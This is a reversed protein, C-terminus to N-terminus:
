ISDTLRVHDYTHSTNQMVYFGSLSNTHKRRGSLIARQMHLIYVDLEQSVSVVSPDCLDGVAEAADIMQKTLM